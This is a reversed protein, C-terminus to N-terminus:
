RVKVMKWFLTIPFKKKSLFLLPSSTERFKRPVKQSSEPFKRPVKQSSEPFKRTGWNIARIKLHSEYQDGTHSCIRRHHSSSKFFLKYRNKRVSQLCKSEYQDGIHCCIAILSKFTIKERIKYNNKLKIM